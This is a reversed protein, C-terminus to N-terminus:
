NAPGYGDSGQLLFAQTDERKPRGRAPENLTPSM